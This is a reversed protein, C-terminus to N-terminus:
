EQTQSVAEKARLFEEEVEISYTKEKRLDLDYLYDHASSQAELRMVKDEMRAFGNVINESQSSVLTSKIRHTTTAANARSILMSKRNQLNAYTDKLKVVQAKFQTTQNKIAALQQELVQLKKENEIRDHIALKAMDDNDKEIALQQQRKRDKIITEVQEILGKHKQEFYLQSGLATQAKELEEELERIYQKVMSVPDECKDLTHNIDAAAITKIRKLLGM